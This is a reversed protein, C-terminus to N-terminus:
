RSRLALQVLDLRLFHDFERLFVLDRSLALRPADAFKLRFSAGGVVLVNRRFKEYGILFHHDEGALVHDQMKGTLVEGSLVACHSEQAALEVLVAFALEAKGARQPLDPSVVQGGTDSCGAFQLM